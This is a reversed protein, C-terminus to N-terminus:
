IKVDYFIKQSKERENTSYQKRINNNINIVSKLINLDVNIENAHKVLAATDKPFCAGGFGYKNDPGPVQMHSSGIRRDKSILDVISSWSKDIDLKKYLSNLENFFIVKSALYSNISYKIFSASKIDTHYFNASLCGSHEKYFNILKQSLRKKGGIIIFEQNIFDDLPTKERLFEPNYLLKNDLKSFKDIVLPLVTSKIVKIADPCIKLLEKIVGEVISFDQSFDSKMPTPVCVFIVDPNFSALKDISTSLKPDVIFKEVQNNFGFDVAKGVFGYGVIGM